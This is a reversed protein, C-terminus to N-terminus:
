HSGSQPGVPFQQVPWRVRGDRARRVEIGVLVFRYFTDSTPTNFWRVRNSGSRTVNSYWGALLISFAWPWPHDHLGRDPDSAVLRHLYARM